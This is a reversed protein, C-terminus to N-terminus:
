TLSLLLGWVYPLVAKLADFGFEIAKDLLSKVAEKALGEDDKAKRAGNLLDVLEAKQEEDLSNVEEVAQCAELFTASSMATASSTSTVNNVNESHADIYPSANQTISTAHGSAEQVDIYNALAGEVAHWDRTEALRIVRNFMPMSAFVGKVRSALASQEEESLKGDAAEQCKDLINRLNGMLVSM